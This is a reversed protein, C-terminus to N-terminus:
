HSGSDMIGVAVTVPAPSLPPARVRPLGQLGLEQRATGVGM